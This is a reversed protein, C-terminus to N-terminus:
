NLDITSEFYNNVNITSDILSKSINSIRNVNFM